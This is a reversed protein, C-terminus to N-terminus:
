RRKTAEDRAVSERPDNRQKQSRPESRKAKGHKVAPHKASQPAHKEGYAGRSIIRDLWVICRVAPLRPEESEM